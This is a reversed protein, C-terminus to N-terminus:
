GRFIVLSCKNLMNRKSGDVNNVVVIKPVVNGVAVETKKYYLKKLSQINNSVSSCVLPLVFNPFFSNFTIKFQQGCDSVLSPSSRISSHFLFNLHCKEKELSPVTM